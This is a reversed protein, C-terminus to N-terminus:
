LLFLAIIVTNILYPGHEQFFGILGSCGPGGQVISLILSENIFIKHHIYDRVGFLLSNFLSHATIIFFTFYIFITSVPDSAPDNQSEVFWYFM